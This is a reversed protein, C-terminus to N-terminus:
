YYFVSKVELSRCPPFFACCKQHFSCSISANLENVFVVKGMLESAFSHALSRAFPRLPVRSRHSCHPVYRILSHHLRILSRVLSHGLVRRTSKITMRSLTLRGRAEEVEKQANKEREKHEKKKKKPETEKSAKPARGVNYICQLAKHSRKRKIENDKKM